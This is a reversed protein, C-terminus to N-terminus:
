RTAEAQGILTRDGNCRRHRYGALWRLNTVRVPDIEGVLRYQWGVEACAQGM